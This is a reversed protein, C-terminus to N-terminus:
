SPHKSPINRFMVSAEPLWNQHLCLRFHQDNLLPLRVNLTGVRGYLHAPVLKSEEEAGESSVRFSSMERQSFGLSQICSKFSAVEWSQRKDVKDPALHTRFALTMAKRGSCPEGAQAWAALSLHTGCARLERTMQGLSKM